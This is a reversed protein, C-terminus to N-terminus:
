PLNYLQKSREIEQKERYRQSTLLSTNNNFSRLFSLQDEMEDYIGDIAKLREDDNMELKGSTIVNALEDLNRLSQNLLNSYVNGIYAIESTNLLNSGKFRSYANKYEKILVIQYEIIRGVKYYKKVTPSAEMLGDIFLKHMSFNGESLDKITKYGKSLVTYGKKMDSLIQKFQTLKEVNLLLQIAEDSQARVNLTGFGLLFLLMAFIIKKM